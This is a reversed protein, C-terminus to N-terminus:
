QAEAKCMFHHHSFKRGPITHHFNCKLNLFAWFCYYHRAYLTKVPVQSARIRVYLYCALSLLKQGSVPERLKHEELDLLTLSTTKCPILNLLTLAGQAMALEPGLQKIILSTLNFQKRM